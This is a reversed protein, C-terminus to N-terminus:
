PISTAHQQAPRRSGASAAPPIAHGSHLQGVSCERRSRCASRGQSRTLRALAPPYLVQIFLVGNATAVYVNGDYDISANSPSNIGANLRCALSPTAGNGYFRSAITRFRVVGQSYM